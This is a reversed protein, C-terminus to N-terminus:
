AAYDFELVGDVGGELVTSLMGRVREHEPHRLYLDRAAADKLGMCFAHTFGRHLGTPSNNVGWSFGTIGPIKKQLGGVASFVREVERMPVNGRVRLLVMHVIM